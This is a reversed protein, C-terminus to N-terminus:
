PGAARRWLLNTLPPLKGALGLLPGRALTTHLEDNSFLTNIGDFTGLDGMIVKLAYYPGEGIPAVCPNPLNQPDALYRNFTTTGRGFQQDVGQGATRNYDRVTQELGAADLGANRALEALTSGSHLYGNRLM